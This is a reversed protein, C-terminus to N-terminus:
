DETELEPLEVEIVEYEELDIADITGGRIV